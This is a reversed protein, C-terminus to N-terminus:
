RWRGDGGSTNTSVVVAAEQIGSRVAGAGVVVKVFSVAAPVLVVSVGSMFVIRGMSWTRQKRTQLNPDDLLELVVIVHPTMAPTRNTQRPM